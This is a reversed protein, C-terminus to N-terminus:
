SGVVSKHHDLPATSNLAKTHVVATFCETVM